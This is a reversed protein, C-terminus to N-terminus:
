LSHVKDVLYEENKKDPLLMAMHIGKTICLDKSAVKNKIPIESTPKIVEKSAFTAIIHSYLYKSEYTLSSLVGRRRFQFM